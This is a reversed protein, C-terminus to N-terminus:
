KYEINEEFLDNLWEPINKDKMLRKVETLLNDIELKDIVKSQYFVSKGDGGRELYHWTIRYYHTNINIFFIHSDLEKLSDYFISIIM